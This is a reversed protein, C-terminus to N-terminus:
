VPKEKINNKVWTKCLRKFQDIKKVQTINGPLSGWIRAGQYFFSGRCTALRFEIRSRVNQGSRLQPPNMEQNNQGFFREFHYAPKEAQFIKYVHVATHYAGLQHVSLSRSKELLTSTPVSRDLKTELRLVKNQLVQLRRMDNRNMSLKNGDDHQGPIDWIGIWVSMCYIMKSTFIGSVVQKFKKNPLFKRLNKLMGVRKSLNKILGLNDDDGYLHNKWTLTDNVVIGLLKESRSPEVSKEDIQLKPSFNENNEIKMKRNMFTGLLLLKTKEGSVVMDNKKFWESVQM